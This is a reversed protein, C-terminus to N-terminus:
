KSLPKSLNKITDIILINVRFPVSHFTSNTREILFSDVVLPFFNNVNKGM